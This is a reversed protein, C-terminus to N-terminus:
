YGLVKNSIIDIIGTYYVKNDIVETNDVDLHVEATCDQNSGSIVVVRSHYLKYEHTSKISIKTKLFTSLMKDLETPSIATLTDAKSLSENNTVDTMRYKEIIHSYDSLSDLDSEKSCSYVSLLTLIVGFLSNFVSKSKKIVGITLNKKKKNKIPLRKEAAPNGEKLAPMVKPLEKLNEKTTKRM